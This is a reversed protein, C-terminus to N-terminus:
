LYISKRRLYAWAHQPKESLYLPTAPPPTRELGRLNPYRTLMDRARGQLILVHLMIWRVDTSLDRLDIDSIIEANDRAFHRDIFRYATYLADPTAGDSQDRTLSAHTM